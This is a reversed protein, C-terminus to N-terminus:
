AYLERITGESPMLPGQSGCAVGAWSMSPSVEHKM